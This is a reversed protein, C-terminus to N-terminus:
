NQGCDGNLRIFTAIREVASNPSHLLASKNQEPQRGSPGVWVKRKEFPESTGHQLWQSQVGCESIAFVANELEM